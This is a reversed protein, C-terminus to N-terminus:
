ITMGGDVSFVNGTSFAAEDSALFVVMPAIEHAQALRGMPQRNIFDIRAKAPDAYSNIRDHLSPTEVTGPCLANCRIGQRVYDAAVSKTLGIVAAKSAGYVFRSPLGRVSSAISAMNIISGGGNALMKPIAEQIVWFQSRVNLNFAFNWDDDTADMVTGNHVYGACNFIADIRPLDAVKKIIANKDMVDLVSAYVGKVSSYSELLKPNVDTAYVTAGEAVMAMVTARGIGQGSATVFIHKGNLRM